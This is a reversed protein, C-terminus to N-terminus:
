EMVKEITNYEFGNGQWAVDEWVFAVFVCVMGVWMILVPYSSKFLMLLVAHNEYKNTIIM